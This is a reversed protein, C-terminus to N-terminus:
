DTLRLAHKNLVLWYKGLICITECFEEFNVPKRIYSNAGLSYSEIIDVEEDSSTLIVVPILKTKNNRRLHKLVELGGIKSMKLDLLIVDPMMETRIDKTSSFYDLVETGDNMVALNCEVAENKLALRTLEVDDPNDEVLLITKNSM